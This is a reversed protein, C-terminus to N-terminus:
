FEETLTTMIEKIIRGYANGQVECIRSECCACETWSDLIASDIVIMNDMSETEAFETIRSAIYQTFESIRTENERTVRIRAPYKPCHNNTM